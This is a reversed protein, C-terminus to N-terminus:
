REFLQANGGDYAQQQTHQQARTCKIYTRRREDDPKKSGDTQEVDHEASAGFDVEVYHTPALGLRDTQPKRTKEEGKNRHDAGAQDHAYGRRAL